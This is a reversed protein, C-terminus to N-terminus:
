RFHYGYREVIVCFLGDFLVTISQIISYIFHITTIRKCLYILLSLGGLLSFVDFWGIASERLYFTDSVAGCSLLTLRLWEVRLWDFIIRSIHLIFIHRLSLTSYIFCHIAFRMTDLGVWGINGWLPVNVRTKLLILISLISWERLYHIFLLLFRQKKILILSM